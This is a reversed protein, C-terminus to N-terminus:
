KEFLWWLFLSVVIGTIATLIYAIFELFANITILIM